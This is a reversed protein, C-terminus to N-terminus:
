NGRGGANGWEKIYERFLESNLSTGGSCLEVTDRLVPNQIDSPLFGGRRRIDEHWVARDVDPPVSTYDHGRTSWVSASLAEEAAPWNKRYLHLSGVSHTYTGVSAGLADAVLRQITTFCYVDYPTGLWLDNSRMNVIMHLEDDRLLFQWTLTCPADRTRKSSAALLDRKEFIPIVVQRSNAHDRLMEIAVDLSDRGGAALRAGYAGYARLGDDSFNVYQPAYHAIHEISDSRSLYWMLEGSAYRPSLARRSNCLFNRNPDVRFSQGILELSDGNRSLVMKGYQLCDYVQSKWEEDM